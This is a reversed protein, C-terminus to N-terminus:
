GPVVEFRPQYASLADLCGGGTVFCYHDVPGLVEAWRRASVSQSYPAGEVRYAFHHPVLGTDAGPDTEISLPMEDLIRIVVADALIVRLLHGRDGPLYFDASMTRWDFQMLDSKVCDLQVGADIPFYTAM